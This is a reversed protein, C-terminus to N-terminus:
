LIVAYATNKRVPVFIKPQSKVVSDIKYCEIIGNFMNIRFSLINTRAVRGNNEVILEKKAGGISKIFYHQIIHGVHAKCFLLQLQYFIRFTLNSIYRYHVILAQHAVM